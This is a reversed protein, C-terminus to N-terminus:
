AIYRAARGKSASRAVADALAMPRGLLYGQATKIGLGRLTKLESATEVGEAVIQSGTDRAFGILAAALARRALDLDINRTLEMDLKILDPQLNLIHRMSAYGAGADDVALRIGRQRMAMVVSALDHYDAVSAHETVEVVIRDAPAGGLADAFGSSMITRPSANVALYVEPPFAPFAALAKRLAVIELATGLGVEAAEDFWADPPRLPEAAFRALCEFGVARHTELCVIPQYVISPQGEDIASTVRRRKEEDAKVAELERNIEFATLDAFARM